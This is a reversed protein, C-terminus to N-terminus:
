MKYKGLSGPDMKELMDAWKEKNEPTFSIDQQMEEPVRAKEVVQEEIFIPAGTRLALALADSPRSDVVLLEDGKAIHVLAYFTNDRLDTVEVRTVQAEVSKLINTLLDHTLPRPVDVKELKLAIASAELLGIWIPVAFTAEKDRLIVVPVNAKPDFMIGAITVEIFM